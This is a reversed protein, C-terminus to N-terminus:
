KKDSSWQWDSALGPGPNTWNSDLQILPTDLLKSIFFATTGYYSTGVFDRPLGTQDGLGIIYTSGKKKPEGFPNQAATSTSAAASTPASSSGRPAPTAAGSSTAAAP